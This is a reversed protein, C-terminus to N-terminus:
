VEMQRINNIPEKNDIKYIYELFRYQLSLRLAPRILYPDKTFPLTKSLYVKRGKILLYKTEKDRLVLNNCGKNLVTVRNHTRNSGLVLYIKNLYDVIIYVGTFGWIALSCGSLPHYVESRYSHPNKLFCLYGFYQAYKNKKIRKGTRNKTLSLIEKKTLLKDNIIGIALKVLDETTSFLGAHGALITNEKGMIRAKLDNVTGKNSNTIFVQNNSKFCKYEYNTNVIRKLKSSPVKICTDNMKLPHIIYQCVLDYFPKNTARELVYKLVMPALDNYRRDIGPKFNKKKIVRFLIKEMEESSVKNFFLLQKNNTQCSIELPIFTLLEKITIKKIYLFRTDYDGVQDNINIVKDKILKMTVLSTFLKTVSALDFIADYTMKEVDKIIKKDKLTVEQKNGIIITERYNLTGYTLNMGAVLKRDNIITKLGKILASRNFLKERIQDINNYREILKLVPLLLQYYQEKSYLNQQSLDANNNQNVILFDIFQNLKAKM